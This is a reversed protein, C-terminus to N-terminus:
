SSCRTQDPVGNRCNVYIREKTLLSSDSELTPAFSHTIWIVGKTRGFYSRVISLLRRAAGGNRHNILQYIYRNSTM